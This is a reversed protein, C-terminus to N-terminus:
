CRLVRVRKFFLENLTLYSKQREDDLATARVCKKEHIEKLLCMTSPEQPRAETLVTTAPLARHWATLCCVCLCSETTHTEKESPNRSDLQHAGLSMIKEALWAKRILWCSRNCKTQSQKPTIKRNTVFLSFVQCSSTNSLADSSKIFISWNWLVTRTETRDTSCLLTRGM